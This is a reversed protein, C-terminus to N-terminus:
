LVFVFKSPAKIAAIEEGGAIELESEVAAVIAPLSDKYRKIRTVSRISLM